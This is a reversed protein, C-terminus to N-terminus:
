GRRAEEHDLDLCSIAEIGKMFGIQFFAAAVSNLEKLTSTRLEDFDKDTLERDASRVYLIEAAIGFLEMACKNLSELYKEDQCLQFATWRACTVNGLGIDFPSRLLQKFKAVALLNLRDADSRESAM